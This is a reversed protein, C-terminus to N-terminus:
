VLNFIEPGQGTAFVEKVKLAQGRMYGHLYCEGVFYYKADSAETDTADKPRLLYLVAGGFLMVVVDGSRANHPCLGHRASTKDLYGAAVFLCPSICPLSVQNDPSVRHHCTYHRDDSEQLEDAQQTALDEQQLEPVDDKSIFRKSRRLATPDFIQSFVNRLEMWAGGLGEPQWYPFPMIKQITCIRRGAIQLTHADQADNVVINPKTLGSAQYSTGLDLGLTAKAWGSDGGDALNISWTPYTLTSIDIPEGYYTRQWSRNRLTHVASLIRLSKHKDIWWRVFDCFVTTPPKYYDPRIRPDQLDLDMSVHASTDEGFQLMAFLKDRADTAKMVHAALITELIGKRAPLAAIGQGPTQTDSVLDLFTSPMISPTLFTAWNGEQQAKQIRRELSCFTDWSMEENGCFVTRDRSNAVEQLM